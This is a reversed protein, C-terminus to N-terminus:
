GTRCCAAADLMVHQKDELDQWVLSRGMQVSSDEALKLLIIPGSQPRCLIQKHNQLLRPASLLSCANSTRFSSLPRRAELSIYLRDPCGM